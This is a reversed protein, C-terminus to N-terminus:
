NNWCRKRLSLGKLYSFYPAKLLAVCYTQFAVSLFHPTLTPSRGCLILIVAIMAKVVGSRPFVAAVRAKLVLLSYKLIYNLLSFLKLFGNKDVM